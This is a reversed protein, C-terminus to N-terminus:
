GQEPTQGASLIDEVRKVKDKATQKKDTRGGTLGGEM